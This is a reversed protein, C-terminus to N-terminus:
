RWPAWRRWGWRTAMRRPAPSSNPASTAVPVAAIEIVIPQGLRAAMREAAIRAVFDSAGGPPFPVIFRLPRARGPAEEGLAPAALAPLALLARRRIVPDGGRAQPQRVDLHRVPIRAGQGPGGATAALRERFARAAEPDKAELNQKNQITQRQVHEVTVGRRQRDYLDLLAADEGQIVQALKGALNVADHVGGNLGMGGLPNNIHAADGALLVRGQRFTKAVRQHV